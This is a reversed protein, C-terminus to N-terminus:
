ILGVVKLLIGLGFELSSIILAMITVELSRRKIVDGKSLPKAPCEVPRTKKWEELDDLRGFVGKVGNGELQKKIIEVNVNIKNLLKIQEKTM